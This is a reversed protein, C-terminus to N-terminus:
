GIKPVGDGFTIPLIRLSRRARGFRDYGVDPAEWAHFAFRWGGAGDPFPTGGGPGMMTARSGLVATASVRACPGTPGDCRAVGTGYNSTPWSSGSYFLLVGGNPDPMMAPGEIVPYEWTRRKCTLIKTPKTGAAFSLGSPDLLRSWIHSRTTPNGTSWVLYASGDLAVYPSPDISWVESRQCILPGNADDFFPGVPSSSTARGICQTGLSGSRAAYYMVYRRSPHNAPRELVTPAWTFGFLTAWESGGGAFPDGEWHWTVGDPSSAVQAACLGSGTAYAYWTGATSRFVFPDPFDLADGDILVPPAYAGNPAARNM